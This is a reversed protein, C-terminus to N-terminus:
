FFLTTFNLTTSDSIGAYPNGTLDTIAGHDIEMHYPEDSRLAVTPMIIVLDGEFRVQESDTVSIVRYDYSHDGVIWIFGDNGPKVVENFLLQIFDRQFLYGDDRPDSALLYPDSSITRFNLTTSDSIGAYPNGALDAIATNTIEIHYNSEPALDSAPNIIVREGSITVQSADNLGIYRTDNKNDDNSILIYGGDAAQVAENFTLVIDDDVAVETAGDAPSFTATPPTTDPIIAKFNLTTLDSIGAYPNGALDTIAGDDIEIHYSTNAILDTTPNIFVQGTLSGNKDRAFTVQSTDTLSITRTDSSNNSKNSNGVNLNTNLNNIPTDDVIHIYGSVAKVPENFNLTINSDVLFDTAEDQPDSASLRPNSPITTFNLATADSIGAYANGALDTIATNAIEIHYDTEPVLDTSPNIFVQNGIFTVQSADTVAITRTDSGNSIVINGSGPKVNENFDLRIDSDVQFDKANNEPYSWPNLIPNSSITTFNLASPDSIGAYANGGRDNIAGNEIEIHYHANPVLDDAPNIVVQYGNFIVQSTDTVAITRTDGSNNNNSHTDDVIRIYGNVATVPKNFSLTIDSDVQFDTAEDVPNSWTFIPGTAAITTFNLKTSDSIGVYGHGTLDNIAGNEIEIHYHANPVLDDAPNIVVYGMSGGQKNDVFTVQNQDDIDILRTDDPNDDNVIRIAGSGSSYVYENFVLTIDSDVKFDAADDLPDSSSLVPYAPAITTFNLTTPDSIGAYANGALDTIAGDDIEIHYDNNAVLDNGPDILVYSTLDGHKGFKNHVFTVLDQYNVPITRTDGSDTDNVIRINGSGAKVPENFDLIIALSDAQFDAAGDGPNSWSLVPNSPIATFRINCGAFANEAVDTIVGSALNIQYVTDAVWANQPKIIVSNGDFFVQNDNVNIIRTETGNGIVISIDGKGAKVPENFIMRFEGDAVLIQGYSPTTFELFPADHDKNKNNGGNGSGGSGGNNPPTVIIPVIPTLDQPIAQNIKSILQGGTFNNVAGGLNNNTVGSIIANVASDQAVTASKSLEVIDKASVAAANSAATIK